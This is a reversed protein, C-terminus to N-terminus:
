HAILVRYFRPQSGVRDSYEIPQSEVTPLIRALTTWSVLDSSVQLKHPRDPVTRFRIRITDDLM